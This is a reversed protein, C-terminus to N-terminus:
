YDLPLLADLSHCSPPQYQGKLFPTKPSRCRLFFPAPPPAGGFAAGFRSMASVGLFEVAAGTCTVTASRIASSALTNSTPAVGSGVLAMECTTQGAALKLVTVAVAVAVWRFAMAGAKM